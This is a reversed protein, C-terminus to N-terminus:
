PPPRAAVAPSPWGKAPTVPSPETTGQGLGAERGKVIAEARDACQLKSFISSVRNRVTKPSLVLKQAITANNHGAAILDLVVREGETLESFATPPQHPVTASFYELIRQAISRGFIAEGGAVARIARLVDGADAEKLLYGRAGARMAAFVSGDDDSMTLVLVAARPAVERILRAAEIGGCVPMRLDMVVVDPTSRAVADVADAGTAAQGVVEVDDFASLLACLGERFVPHDDAVLVRVPQM